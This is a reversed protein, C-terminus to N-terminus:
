VELSFGGSTTHPGDVYAAQPVVARRPVQTPVAPPPAQAGLKEGDFKEVAQKWTEAEISLLERLLQLREASRNQEVETLLKLLYLYFDCVSKSVPNQPDVVGELLEILIDRIRITWQVSEAQKGNSWLNAVLLCLEEARNVLMWRLRIPSASVVEQQLYPNINSDPQM